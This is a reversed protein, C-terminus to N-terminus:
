ECIIMLNDGFCHFTTCKTCIHIYKNNHRLYKLETSSSGLLSSFLTLLILASLATPVVNCYSLHPNIHAQLISHCHFNQPFINSNKFIFYAGSSVRRIPYPFHLTPPFESDNTKFTSFQTASISRLFIKQVTIPSSKWATM